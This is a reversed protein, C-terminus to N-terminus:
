RLRPQETASDDAEVDAIRRAREIPVEAAPTPRGFFYGQGFTCGMSELLLHQWQTEIGEAVAVLGLEAALSLISRVIANDNGGSGMGAVFSRDIKLTHVPFSQLYTLSAWGTGFDDISVGVGLGVLTRLAHSAKDLEEVLATETIELWLHAPDFGSARIIESFREALGPDALQRTSVNVALGIDIGSRRWQAAQRCAADLVIEGLEVILGTREATELFEAPALTGREPHEWRVLAEVTLVHGDTLDIVPQYHVVFEDDAIGQKVRAALATDLELMRMHGAVEVPRNVSVVGIPEGGHDRLLTQSGLIEVTSGDRTVQRVTGHWRGTRELQDRAEAPQGGDGVSRLVDLVHRGLVADESWGYLREAAHNWSQIHSHLDTIVVADGVEALVGTVLGRLRDPADTVATVEVRRAQEGHWDVATSSVEAVVMEGDSRRIQMIESRRVHGAEIEERRAAVAAESTPAALDQINKGVLTARDSGGILDQAADDAFVILGDVHVIVGERPLPPAVARPVDHPAPLDLRYGAGPVTVLVAPAGPDTEIKERLRRIHETVTAPQQRESVSRWVAHLLQKHSFVHGPRVALYALLAFEKATLDVVEGGCTVQRSGLDIDCRGLQIRTDSRVNRRRRVALVRETLEQLFFPKLVYDDAGRQLADVRDAEATSDGLVIVHATSGSERLVDVLDLGSVAPLALDLIVVLFSQLEIATTAEAATGAVAVQIGRDQLQDRLDPEAGVILADM